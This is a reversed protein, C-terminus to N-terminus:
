AEGLRRRVAAAVLAEFKARQADDAFASLPIAVFALRRMRVLYFRNRRVLDRVGQLPLKMGNGTESFFYLTDADAAMWTGKTFLRSAKGSSLVARAPISFPWLLATMGIVQAVGRMTLVAILGFIPATAMFWWFGRIYEEAGLMGLQFRPIRYPATEVLFESM